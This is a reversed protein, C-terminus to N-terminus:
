KKKDMEMVVLGKSLLTKLFKTVAMEAEPVSVKTQNAFRKVIARVTRKGDCSEYVSRGYTDLGFARECTEDGGLMQQWRPRKFRVTVYLKGDKEESKVPPLQHPRAKLAAERAALKQGTGKSDNRM